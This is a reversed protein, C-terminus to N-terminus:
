LVSNEYASKAKSSGIRGLFTDAFAVLNNDRNYHLLVHERAARRLGQLSSRKRWITEVQSTFDELSGARYLFGTKGHEVLEPIGTIAPALVTREQVMAEMLVLPIGESRSTLLVLDAIQYYYSVWDHPLQGLLEVQQKLDLRAILRQLPAREPGEGVILCLFPLGRDKLIRCARILFAHDKVAHLRGVSLLVMCDSKREDDTSHSRNELLEVGMRQVLVKEPCIDPFNQVIHRRNFGSVTLCFAANKLKTDLYARHLLLDSGHLTISFTIGLMRAAVMAVWSGFYGHHAHIHEVGRGELTLAYYIGIWTHLLAKIRRLPSERGQILVRRYFDSLESFRKV